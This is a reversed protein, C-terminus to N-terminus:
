RQEFRHLHRDLWSSGVFRLDEDAIDDLVDADTPPTRTM